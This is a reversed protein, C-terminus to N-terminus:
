FPMEDEHFEVIEIIREYAQKVKSYPLSQLSEVGCHECVARLEQETLGNRKMTNWIIKARSEGIPGDDGANAKQNAERVLSTDDNTTEIPSGDQQGQQSSPPQGSQGQGRRGGQKPREQQRSGSEGTSPKPNDSNDPNQDYRNGDWDVWWQEKTEKNYVKPYRWGKPYIGLPNNGGPYVAFSYRLNDNTAQLKMLDFTKGDSEVDSLYYWDVYKSKSVKRLLACAREFENVLRRIEIMQSFDDCAVEFHQGAIEFHATLQPM